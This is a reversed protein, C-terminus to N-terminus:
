DELNWEEKHAEHAIDRRSQIVHTNSSSNGNGTSDLLVLNM